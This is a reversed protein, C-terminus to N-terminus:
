MVTIPLAVHHPHLVEDFLTWQLTSACSFADSNEGHERRCALLMGLRQVARFTM